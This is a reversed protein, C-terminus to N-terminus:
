VSAVARLFKSSDALSASRFASEPSTVFTYSRMIQELGRYLLYKLMVEIAVIAMGLERYEQEVALVM